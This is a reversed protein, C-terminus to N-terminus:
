KHRLLVSNKDKSVKLLRQDRDQHIHTARNKQSQDTSKYESNHRSDQRFLPVEKWNESEEKLFKGKKTQASKIRRSYNVYVM